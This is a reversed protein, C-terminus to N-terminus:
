CCHREAGMLLVMRRAEASILQQPCAAHQADAKEQQEDELHQTNCRCSM